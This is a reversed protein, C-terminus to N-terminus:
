KVVPICPDQRQDLGDQGGDDGAAEQDQAKSAPVRHTGDTVPLAHGDGGQPPERGANKPSQGKIEGSDKGMGHVAEKLGDRSEGGRSGRDEGVDLTHGFAQEEPAAEGV